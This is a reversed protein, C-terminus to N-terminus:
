IPKETVSIKERHGNVQDIAFNNVATPTSMCFSIGPNQVFVGPWMCLMIFIYNCPMTDGWREIHDDSELHLSVRM